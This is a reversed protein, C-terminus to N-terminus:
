FLFNNRKMLEDVNEDLLGHSGGANDFLEIMKIIKTCTQTKKRSKKKKKGIIMKQM